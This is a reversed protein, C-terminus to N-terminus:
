YGAQLCSLKTLLWDLLPDPLIFHVLRFIYINKLRGLINLPRYNLGRGGGGWPGVREATGSRFNKGYADVVTKECTKDQQCTEMGKTNIGHDRGMTGIFINGDDTHYGVSDEKWGPMSSIDYDENVIGIGVTKFKGTEVITVQPHSLCYLMTLVSKCEDMKM